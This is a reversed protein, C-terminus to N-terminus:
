RKHQTIFDRMRSGPTYLSAAKTTMYELGPVCVFVVSFIDNLALDVVIANELNVRRLCEMLEDLLSAGNASQQESVSRLKRFDIVPRQRSIKDLSVRNTDSECMFENRYRAWTLDERLGAIHTLRSQAAETIARAMAVATTPHCGHGIAQQPFPTRNHRDVIMCAFVPVDINIAIYWIFIELGASLCREILGRCVADDISDIVVRRNTGSGLWDREVLWFSTQDREIVECIGHVIAETRTRGSALGNSSALFTPPAIDRRTFDLDFLGSPITKQVSAFLNEGEVWAIETNGSLSADARIPLSYPSVFSPNHICEVLKCTASAPRPQEAYFVEISEMIGSIVAHEKTVGKGQSVSLSRALPRVITLVPIGITDLGTIDAIRTIGFEPLLPRLRDFMGEVTRERATSVYNMAPSVTGNESKVLHKRGNESADPAM